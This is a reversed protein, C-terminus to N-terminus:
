REARCPDCWERSIGSPLTAVARKWARTLEYQIVAFAEKEALDEFKRSRLREIRATTETDENQVCATFDARSANQSFFLSYVVLRTLDANPAASVDPTNGRLFRVTEFLPKSSAGHIYMLFALHESGFESWETFVTNLIKQDIGPCPALQEFPPPHSVTERLQRYEKELPNLLMISSSFCRPDHHSHTATTAVGGKLKATAPPERVATPSQSASKSATQAATNGTEQAAASALTRTRTAYLESGRRPLAWIRDLGARQQLLFSEARHRPQKQHVQQGSGQSHSSFNRGWFTSSSAADHPDHLGHGLPEEPAPLFLDSDLFLVRAFPLKWLENKRAFARSVHFGDSSNTPSRIQVKNQHWMSVRHLNWGGARVVEEAESSLGAVIATRNRTSDIAALARGLLAATCPYLQQTVEHSHPATPAHYIVTAYSELVSHVM